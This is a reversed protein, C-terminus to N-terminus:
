WMYGCDKCKMTKAIKASFLGLFSISVGREAVGIKQVNYSSCTPCKPRLSQQQRYEELKIMSDAYAQRGKENFAELEKEKGGVFYQPLYQMELYQHLKMDDPLLHEIKKDNMEQTLMIDNGLIILQTHCAPCIGYNKEEKRSISMKGCSPCLTHFIFHRSEEYTM